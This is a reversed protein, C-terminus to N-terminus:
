GGQAMNNLTPLFPKIGLRFGEKHAESVPRRLHNDLLKLTERAFEPRDLDRPFPALFAVLHASAIFSLAQIEGQLKEIHERDTQEPM